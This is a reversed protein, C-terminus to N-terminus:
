HAFKWPYNERAAKLASDIKALSPREGHYAVIVGDIAPQIITFRHYRCDGRVNMEGHQILGEEMYILTGSLEMVTTADEVDGDKGHGFLIFVPM